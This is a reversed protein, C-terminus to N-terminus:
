KKLNNVSTIKVKNGISDEDIICQSSIVYERCMNKNEFSNTEIM